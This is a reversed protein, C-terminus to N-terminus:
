GVKHANWVLVDDVLEKYLIRLIRSTDMLHFKMKGRTINYSGVLLKVADDILQLLREVNEDTVSENEFLRKLFDGNKIAENSTGQITSLLTERVKTLMNLLIKYDDLKSDGKLCM